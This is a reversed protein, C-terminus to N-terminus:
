KDWTDPHGYRALLLKLSEKNTKDTNTQRRNEWEEHEKLKASLDKRAEERIEEDSMVLLTYPLTFNEPNPDDGDSCFAGDRTLSIYDCYNYGPIAIRKDRAPKFEEHLINKVQEARDLFWQVSAIRDKNIADKLINNM